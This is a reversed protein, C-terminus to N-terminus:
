TLVFPPIIFATNQHSPVSFFLLITKNAKYPPFFLYFFFLASRVGVFKIFFCPFFGLRSKVCFFPPSCFLGLFIWGQLLRYILSCICIGKKILFFIIGFVNLFCFVSKPQYPHLIDLAHDSLIYIYISLYISLYIYLYRDLARQCFPFLFLFGGRCKAFLLFLM